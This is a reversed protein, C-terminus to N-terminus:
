GLEFMVNANMGTLDACFLDAAAIEQCLEQIIVKGGVRCQDWRKIFVQKGRNIDEVATHIIEIISEPTSPYAFFGTPIAQNM